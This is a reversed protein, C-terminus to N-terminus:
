TPIELLKFGRWEIVNVVVNEAKAWRREEASVLKKAEKPTLAVEIRGDAFLILIDGNEQKEIITKLRM